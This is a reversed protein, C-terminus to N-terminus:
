ILVPFAQSSEYRQWFYTALIEREVMSSGGVVSGGEASLAM